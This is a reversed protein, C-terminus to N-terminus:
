GCCRHLYPPSCPSNWNTVFAALGYVISSVAAVAGSVVGSSLLSDLAEVDGTNRSVLDGGGFRSRAHPALRQTHAFVQDRLRLLMTETVDGTRIGGAYSSVAGLLSVAVWIMMPTGLAGLDGTVLVDDVIHGFLAVTAVTTGVHVLHCVVAVVLRWRLGALLHAFRRMTAAVSLTAPRTRPGPMGATSKDVDLDDAPRSETTTFM